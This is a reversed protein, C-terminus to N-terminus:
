TFVQLFQRSMSSFTRLPFRPLVGLKQFKFFITVESSIFINVTQLSRQKVWGGPSWHQVLPRHTHHCKSSTLSRKSVANEVQKEIRPNKRECMSFHVKQRNWTIYANDLAYQVYKMLLNSEFNSTEHTFATKTLNNLQTLCGLHAFWKVNAQPCVAWM